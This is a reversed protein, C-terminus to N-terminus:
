YVWQWRWQWQYQVEQRFMQNGFCDLIPYGFRDFLPIDGIVPVRVQVQIYRGQRCFSTPYNNYNMPVCSRGRIYVDRRHCNIQATITLPIFMTIGLLLFILNKM